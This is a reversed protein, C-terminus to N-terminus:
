MSSILLVLSYMSFLFIASRFSYPSSPASYGCAFISHLAKTDNGSVLRIYVFCRSTSELGLRDM